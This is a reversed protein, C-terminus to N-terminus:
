LLSLDFSITNSGSGIVGKYSGAHMLAELETGTWYTGGMPDPGLPSDDDWLKLTLKDTTSLTLTKDCATFWFPSYTDALYGTACTWVDNVYIAVYPDPASTLDYSGSISASVVILEYKGGDVAACVGSKYLCSENSACDSPDVCTPACVGSSCKETTLCKTTAVKGTLVDCKQATADNLCLTDTATCSKCICTTVGSAGYGCYSYGLYGSDICDQQSCTFQHLLGDGTSCYNLTDGSCYNDLDTCPAVCTGASCLMGGGCNCTGGCGDSDPGCKTGDCSPKCTPDVCAGGYCVNVGTCTTQTLKGTVNDCTQVTKGDFCKNDADTCGNCLCTADEGPNAGCHSYSPYGAQLCSADSCTTAKWAGDSGCAHLTDGSCYNDKTSCPPQCQGGVCSDAGNCGCTGGCGDSSLGCKVGDCKPVCKPVCKGGSCSETDACDTTTFKGTSTNCQKLQGASLCTNDAKTCPSCLCAYAGNKDQGCGQFSKYGEQQCASQSCARSTLAGTLAECAILTDGECHDDNSTCPTFTDSVGTDSTGGSDMGGGGGGADVPVVAGGGSSAGSSSCGMGAIVLAVGGWFAVLRSSQKM